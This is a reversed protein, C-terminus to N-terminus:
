PLCQGGAGADKSVACLPANFSGTAHDGNAFSLDFTGIYPDVSTLTVVGDMYAAHTGYCTASYADWGAGQILGSQGTGYSGVNVVSTATTDGLTFGVTLLNAKINGSVTEQAVGCMDPMNGVLITVIGPYSSDYIGKMAVAGKADLTKGGLTGNVTNGGGGDASPADPTSADPPPPSADSSADSGADNPQNPSSCGVLAMVIM